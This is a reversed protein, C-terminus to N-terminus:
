KEKIPEVIEGTTLDVRSGPKLKLSVAAITTADDLRQQAQIAATNLALLQIRLEEPVKM